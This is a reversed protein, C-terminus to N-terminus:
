PEPAMRRVWEAAQRPRMRLIMVRMTFGGHFRGDQWYMWDSIVTTKGRYPAGKKLDALHVPNNAIVGVFEDGDLAVDDVWIHERGDKHTFPVKIHYSTGAKGAIAELFLPLTKHAKEIAANMQPDTKDFYTLPDGQQAIAPSAALLAVVFLIRFLAEGEPYRRTGIM